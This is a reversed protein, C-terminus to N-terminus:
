AAMRRLADMDGLFAEFTDYQRAVHCFVNEHPGIVVCRKGLALAYGFEVFRGGRTGHQGVPETFLVFLDAKEIDEIDERAFAAQAVPPIEHDPVGTWEHAGDGLWRSTVMLGIADLRHAYGQLERKRSFRSALYITTMGDDGDRAGHPARDRQARAPADLRSQNVGEEADPSRFFTSTPLAREIDQNLGDVLREACRVHLYITSTVGSWMIIPDPEKSVDRLLEGCYFCQKGACIYGFIEHVETEPDGPLGSHRSICHAM